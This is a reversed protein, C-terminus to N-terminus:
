SACIAACRAETTTITSISGTALATPRRPPCRRRRRRAFLFAVVRDAHAANDSILRARDVALRDRAVVFRRRGVRESGACFFAAGVVAIVVRADRRRRRRAECVALKNTHAGDVRLAAAPVRSDVARSLGRSLALTYATM